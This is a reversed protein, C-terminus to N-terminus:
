SRYPQPNEWCLIKWEKRLNKKTTRSETHPHPFVLISQPWTPNESQKFSNYSVIRFTHTCGGWGVSLEWELSGWTGRKQQYSFWNKMEFHFIHFIVSHVTKISKESKRTEMISNECQFPCIDSVSHRIIIDLKPKKNTTDHSSDCKM